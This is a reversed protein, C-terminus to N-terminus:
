PIESQAQTLSIRVLLSSPTGNCLVFEVSFLYKDLYKPLEFDDPIYAIMLCLILDHRSQKNLIVQLSNYKRASKLVPSKQFYRNCPSNTFPSLRLNQISFLFSNWFHVYDDLKGFLKTLTM